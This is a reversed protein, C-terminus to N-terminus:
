SIVADLRYLFRLQQKKIAELCQGATLINHFMNSFKIFFANASVKFEVSPTQLFQVRKILQTVDGQYPGLFSNGALFSKAWVRSDNQASIIKSM